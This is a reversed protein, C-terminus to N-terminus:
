DGWDVVYLSGEDPVGLPLAEARIILSSGENASYYFVTVNHLNVKESKVHQAARRVAAFYTSGIRGSTPMFAGLGEPVYYREDPAEAGNSADYTREDAVFKFGSFGMEALRREADAQTMEYGDRNVPADKVIEDITRQRARFGGVAGGFRRRAERLHFVFREWANVGADDIPTAEVPYRASDYLMSVQIAEGTVPDKVTIKGTFWAEFFEVEILRDVSDSLFTPWRDVDKIIEKRILEPAEGVRDGLEQLYEEDLTKRVSVPMIRYDRAPGLREALERPQANFARRGAIARHEVKTIESIKTSPSEVRPALAPWRLDNPNEALRAQERITLNAASLIGASAAIINFM